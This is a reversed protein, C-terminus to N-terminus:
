RTNGEIVVVRARAINQIRGYPTSPDGERQSTARLVPFYTGPREFAHTASVRVREAPAFPPATTYDGSGDVCWEADVVTGAGLPVDIVGELVVPEGAAVDARVEGNATLAVVPQIGGREAANASVRVQTDVIEYRTDRPREGQEVWAALDRLGQQLAGEYSVTRALAALTQPNDHRAHDIFWLAFSDEFEAGMAARVTSRYWDAQWALADIDMLCQLVLM